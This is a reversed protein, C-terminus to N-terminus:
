CGSKCTGNSGLFDRRCLRDMGIELANCLHIWGQISNHLETRLRRLSFGSRGIGSQRSPLNEPREVAYGHGDLIGQIGCSGDGCAPCFATGGKDGGM